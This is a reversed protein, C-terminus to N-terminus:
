SGQPHLAFHVQIGGEIVQAVGIGTSVILVLIAVWFTYWQVGNRRDYFWQSITRPTADDFAQKLIVLRDRWFLFREIQRESHPLDGCKTLRNDVLCPMHQECLRRLWKPKKNKSWGRSGFQSQPFLLALTRLTEEVVGPPFLPNNDQMELFSAHHFILVKADGVFLLHDALNDTFDIEIGGIKCISWADFAKPLRVGECSLVPRSEEFYESVFDQMSGAKWDLFGRPNAQHKFTGIKLM